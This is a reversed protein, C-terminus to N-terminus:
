GNPHRVILASPGRLRMIPAEDDTYTHLDWNYLKGNQWDGCVTIGYAYAVCNARHRHLAGNTDMWAREHWLQTSLDYVWTHDAQPFPRKREAASILLAPCEPPRRGAPLRGSLSKAKRGNFEM